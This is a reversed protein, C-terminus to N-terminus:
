AVSKSQVETVCLNVVILAPNRQCFFPRLLANRTQVHSVKHEYSLNLYDTPLVSRISILCLQFLEVTNYDCVNVVKLEDFLEASPSYRAQFCIERLIKKQLIFIPKLRNDSTCSYVSFGCGFVPKLYPNCYQLLM